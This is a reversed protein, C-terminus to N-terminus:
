GTFALIVAGVIALGGLGSAVYPARGTAGAKRADYALLIAAAALPVPLGTWFVAVSVLSCVAFVTAARSRSAADEHSEARRVGFRYIAATVAALVIVFGLYFWASDNNGEDTNAFTGIATLGIAVALAAAGTEYVRQDTPNMRQPLVHM